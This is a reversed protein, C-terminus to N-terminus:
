HKRSLVSCILAHDFHPDNQFCWDISARSSKLNGRNRYLIHDISNYEKKAAANNSSMVHTLLATGKEDICADKFDYDNLLKDYREIFDDDASILRKGANFDGLVLNPIFNHLNALEELKNSIESAGTEDKKNNIKSLPHAHVALANFWVGDVCIRFPLFRNASGSTVEAEAADEVLGPKAVVLNVFHNRSNEERFLVSYGILDEMIASFIEQSYLVEQLVLVAGEEAIPKLKEWVINWGDLPNGQKRWNYLGTNFSYIKVPMHEEKEM